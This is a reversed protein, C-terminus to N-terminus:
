ALLEHTPTLSADNHARPFSAIDNLRYRVARSICCYPADEYYLLQDRAAWPEFVLHTLIHDVHCGVGLPVYIQDFDCEAFVCFFPKQRLTPLWAVNEPAPPVALYKLWVHGLLM